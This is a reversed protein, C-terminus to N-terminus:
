SLLGLSEVRRESAPHSLRFPATGLAALSGRADRLRALGYTELAPLLGLRDLAHRRQPLAGGTDGRAHLERASLHRSVVLRASLPRRARVPSAMTRQARLQPSGLAARPRDMRHPDPARLAPRLARDRSVRRHRRRPPRLADM